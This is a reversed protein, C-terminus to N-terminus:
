AAGGYPPQPSARATPTAPPSYSAYPSGYPVPGASGHPFCPSLVTVYLRGRQEAGEGSSAWLSYGDADTIEVREGESDLRWRRMQSGPQWQWHAAVADVAEGAAQADTLTITMVDDGTVTGSSRGCSTLQLSGTPEDVAIITAPDLVDRILQLRTVVGSAAEAESFPTGTREPADPTCGALTVALLPLGTLLPLARPARPVLGHPGHTGRPGPPPPHGPRTPRTGPRDRLDDRRRPADM